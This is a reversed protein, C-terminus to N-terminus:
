ARARAGRGREQFAMLCLNLRGGIGYSMPRVEVCYLGPPNRVRQVIEGARDEIRDLRDNVNFLLRGDVCDVLERDKLDQFDAILTVRIQPDNGNDYARMLEWTGDEIQAQIRVLNKEERAGVRKGDIIKVEPENFTPDYGPKGGTTQATAVTDLRAICCTFSNILRVHM